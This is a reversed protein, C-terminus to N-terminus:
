AGPSYALGQEERYAGMRDVVMGSTEDFLTESRDKGVNVSFASRGAIMTVGDDGRKGCSKEMANKHSGALGDKNSRASEYVGDNLARVITKRNRDSKMRRACTAVWENADRRGNRSICASGAVSAPVSDTHLDQNPM